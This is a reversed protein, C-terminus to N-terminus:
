RNVEKGHLDACNSRYSPPQRRAISQKARRDRRNTPEPIKGTDDQFLAVAWLTFVKIRERM